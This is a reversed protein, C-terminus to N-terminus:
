WTILYFILNFQIYSTIHILLYTLSNTSTTTIKDMMVLMVEIIGAINAMNNEMCTSSLSLFFKKLNFSIISLLWSRVLSTRTFISRSASSMFVVTKLDWVSSWSASLFIHIITINRSFLQLFIFPFLSSNGEIKHIIGQRWSLFFKHILYFIIGFFL